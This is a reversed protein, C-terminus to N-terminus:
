DIANAKLWVYEYGNEIFGPLQCSPLPHRFDGRKMGM